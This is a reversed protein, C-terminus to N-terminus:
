QLGANIGSGANVLVRVYSGRLKNSAANIQSGANSLILSKFLERLRTSQVTRFKVKLFYAAYVASM